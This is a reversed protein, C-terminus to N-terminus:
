SLTDFGHGRGGFNVREELRKEFDKAGFRVFVEGIEQIDFCCVPREIGEGAETGVTDLFNAVIRLDQGIRQVLVAVLSQLEGALMTDLDSVSADVSGKLSSLDGRPIQQTNEALLPIATVRSGSGDRRLCRSMQKPPHLGGSRKKFFLNVTLSM